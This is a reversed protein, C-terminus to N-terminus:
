FLASRQNVFYESSVERLDPDIRHGGIAFSTFLLPECVQHTADTTHKSISSCMFCADMPCHRLLIRLIQERHDGQNVTPQVFCICLFIAPKWGSSCDFM